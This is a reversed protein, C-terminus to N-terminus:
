LDDIDYEYFFNFLSSGPSQTLNGDQETPCGDRNYCDWEPGDFSGYMYTPAVKDNSDPRASTFATVTGLQVDEDSADLRLEWYDRFDYTATLKNNELDSQIVLNPHDVSVSVGVSKPASVGYSTNVSTQTEDSYSPEYNWIGLDNLESRDWNQTLEAESNHWCRWQDGFYSEYFDFEDHNDTLPWMFGKQKMAWESKPDGSDEEIYDSRKLKTALRYEGVKESCDGNDHYVSQNDEFRVEDPM